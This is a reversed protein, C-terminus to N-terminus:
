DDYAIEVFHIVAGAAPRRMWGGRRRRVDVIRVGRMDPSTTIRAQLLPGLPHALAAGLVGLSIAGVLRDTWRAKRGATSAGLWAFVSTVLSSTALNTGCGPHIAWGTEGAQLRRIAEEVASRIADARVAGVLHFGRPGSHGALSVPRFRESLVHLTAHELGHNRRISRAIALPTARWLMDM